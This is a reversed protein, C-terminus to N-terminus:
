LESWELAGIYLEHLLGLILLGLFATLPFFYFWLPGEPVWVAPFLIVLEVDFILFLVGLLFFRLSYLERGTRWASFGCEYPSKTSLDPETRLLNLISILFILFISFRIMTMILIIIMQLTYSWLRPFLNSTRLLVKDSLTMDPKHPRNSLNLIYCSRGCNYKPRSLVTNQM